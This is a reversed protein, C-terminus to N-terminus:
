GDHYVKKITYLWHALCTTSLWHALCSKSHKQFGTTPPTDAHSALTDSHACMQTIEHVLLSCVVKVKLTAHVNPPSEM